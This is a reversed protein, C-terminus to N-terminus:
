LESVLPQQQTIIVGAEYEPPGPNLDPSLSRSDQSLNEPNKMVEPLRRTIVKASRKQELSSIFDRENNILSQKGFYCTSISRKLKQKKV